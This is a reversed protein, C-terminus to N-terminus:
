EGTVAKVEALLRGFKGYNVKVGDDLDLKIRKDAYHRLEDDFATLEALKKKLNDLQKQLKNRLSASSAAEIDHRLFDIRANMKGFLPTVYENRMRSLTGENYRHLYVLCQFAREKGSSFLWYIPRRKYTQLHDKFFTTSLYRRISDSPMEGVRPSLSDAVFKLNEDLAEDSWAVELFESFRNTVDDPFWDMDMIPIIGDEDAPLTQYKTLDFDINGNHAYVLGPQDLSYRGMICGIAYSILEKMTDALLLGELEEETKDGRYRYHPNCSLTIESLPVDPTVEDQLGYAEIFIRNSEEEIRQMELTM